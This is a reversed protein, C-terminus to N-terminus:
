KLERTTIFHRKRPDSAVLTSVVECNAANVIVICFIENNFEDTSFLRSPWNGFALDADFNNLCVQGQLSM